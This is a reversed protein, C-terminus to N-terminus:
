FEDCWKPKKNKIIKEVDSIWIAIDQIKNKLEELSLYGNDALDWIKEFSFCIGEEPPSFINNNKLYKLINKGNKFSEINNIKWGYITRFIIYKTYSNNKSSYIDFDLPQNLTNDGNLKKFEVNNGIICDYLEKLSHYNEYFSEVNDEPLYGINKIIKESLIPLHKWHIEYALKSCKKIYENFLKNNYNGPVLLNKLKLYLIKFEDEKDIYYKLSNRKVIIMNIWDRYYQKIEFKLYNENFLFDKYVLFDFEKILINERIEKYTLISDIKKNNKILYKTLNILLNRKREKNIDFYEKIIKELDFNLIYDCQEM